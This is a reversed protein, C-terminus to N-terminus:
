EVGGQTAGERLPKIAAESLGANLGTAGGRLVAQKVQNIKSMTKPDSSLFRAMPTMGGDAIGMLNKASAIAVRPIGSMLLAVSIAGAGSSLGLSHAAALFAGGATVGFLKPKYSSLGKVSAVDKIRKVIADADYLNGKVSNLNDAYNRVGEQLPSGEGATFYNQLKRGTSAVGTSAGPLDKPQVVHGVFNEQLRELDSAHKWYYAAEKYDSSVKKLSDTAAAVAKTAIPNGGNSFDKLEQMLNFLEAQTIPMSSRIPQGNPGLMISTKKYQQITNMVESVKDSSLNSDLVSDGIAKFTNDTQDQTLNALSTKNFVEFAKNGQEKVAQTAKVVKQAIEQPAEKRLLENNVNKYKTERLYKIADPEVGHGSELVTEMTKLGAKAAGTKTAGLVLRRAATVGGQLPDMLGAGVLGGVQAVEESAGVNRLVDGVQAQSRGSIGEKFGEIPNKGEQMATIPGAVAGEASESYSGLAAGYIKAVSRPIAEVGKERLNRLIDEKFGPSLAKRFSGQRKAEVPKAPEEQALFEDVRSPGAQALFDDVRSPM